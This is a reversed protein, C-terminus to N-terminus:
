RNMVLIWHVTQEQLYGLQPSSIKNWWLNDNNYYGQLISTHWSTVLKKNVEKCNLNIMAWTRTTSKTTARSTSRIRCNRSPLPVRLSGEQVWHWCHGSGKGVLSYLSLLSQLLFLILATTVYVLCSLCDHRATSYVGHIGEKTRRQGEKVM